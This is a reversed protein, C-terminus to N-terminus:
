ELAEMYDAKEGALKLLSALWRKKRAGRVVRGVFGLDTARNARNHRIDDRTTSGYRRMFVELSQPKAFVYTAHGAQPIESVVVNPLAFLFERGFLYWTTARRKLQGFYYADYDPCWAVHQAQLHPSVALEDFWRQVVTHEVPQREIQARVRDVVDANEGLLRHIGRAREIDAALNEPVKVKLRSPLAALWRRLVWEGKAFQYKGSQVFAADVAIRSQLWHRWQNWTLDWHVGGLPGADISVEIKRRPDRCVIRDALFECQRLLLSLKRHTVNPRYGLIRHAFLATNDPALQGEVLILGFGGYPFVPPADEDVLLADYCRRLDPNALVNFAREALSAAPSSEAQTQLELSRIRWAMRLMDLTSDPSCGLIQYLTQTSGLLYFYQRLADGSIFIANPCGACNAIEARVMWEGKKNQKPRSAYGIPAHLWHEKKGRPEVLFAEPGAQAIRDGPRLRQGLFSPVTLVSSATQVSMGASHGPKVAHIPQHDIALPVVATGM